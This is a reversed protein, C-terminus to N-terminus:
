KGLGLSHPRHRGRKVSGEVRERRNTPSLCARVASGFSGQGLPIPTPAPNPTAQPLLKHGPATGSSSVLILSIFLVIRILPHM